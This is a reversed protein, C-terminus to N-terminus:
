VNPPEHRPLCFAHPRAALLALSTHGETGISDLQCLYETYTSSITHCRKAQAGKSIIGSALNSHSLQSAIGPLGQLSTSFHALSFSVSPVNFVLNVHGGHPGPPSQCPVRSHVEGELLGRAANDWGLPLSAPPNLWWNEGTLLETAKTAKGACKGAVGRCGPWAGLGVNLLPLFHM